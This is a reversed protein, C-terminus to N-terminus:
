APAKYNTSSADSFSTVNAPLASALPLGKPHFKSKVTGDFSYYQEKDLL